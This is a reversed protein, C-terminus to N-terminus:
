VRSFWLTSAAPMVVDFQITGRRRVTLTRNGSVTAGTSVVIARMGILWDGAVLDSVLGSRLTAGAPTEMGPRVVAWTDHMSQSLSSVAM